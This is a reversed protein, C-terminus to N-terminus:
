QKLMTVIQMELSTKVQELMRELSIDFVGLTTYVIMGAKIQPNTTVTATSPINIIKRTEEERNQPIDVRTIEINEPLQQTAHSQFFAIYDDSSMSVVSQVVDYFARDLATRQAQQTIKQAMQTAKAAAVIEIQQQRKVVESQSLDHLRQIELETNKRIHEVQSNAQLTVEDVKRATESKIREIISIASM